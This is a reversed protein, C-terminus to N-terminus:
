GGGSHASGANLYRMIDALRAKSRKLQRETEDIDSVLNVVDCEVCYEDWTKGHSCQASLPVNTRFPLEIMKAM